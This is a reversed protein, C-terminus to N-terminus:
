AYKAGNAANNMFCFGSAMSSHAHHGPPRVICFGKEIVKNFVADIVEVVGGAALRACYSTWKNEYTDSTFSFTNKGKKLPTVDEGKISRDNVLDNIKNIFLKSHVLIDEDKIEQVEIKTL